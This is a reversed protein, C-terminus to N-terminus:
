TLEKRLRGQSHPSGVLDPWLYQGIERLLISFSPASDVARTRLGVSPCPTRGEREPFGSYLLLVTVICPHTSRLSVWRTLGDPVPQAELIKATPTVCATARPSASPYRQAEGM